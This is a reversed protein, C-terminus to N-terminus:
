RGNRNIGYRWQRNLLWKATPDRRARDAVIQTVELLVVDDLRDLSNRTQAKLHGYAFAHGVDTLRWRQSHRIRGDRHYRLNGHDDRLHEREVLPHEARSLWSLRSSASHRHKLELAQAVELSDTWGDADGHEDLILLFERDSLDLLTLSERM